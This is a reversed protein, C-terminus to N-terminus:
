EKRFLAQPSPKRDLYQNWWVFQKNTFCVYQMHCKTCTFLLVLAWICLLPKSTNPIQLHQPNPPTPKTKQCYRAKLDCGNITQRDKRKVSYCSVTVSVSVKDTIKLDIRGIGMKVLCKSWRIIQSPFPSPPLPLLWLLLFIFFFLCIFLFCQLTTQIPSHDHVWNHTISIKM